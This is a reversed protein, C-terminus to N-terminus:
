SCLKLKLDLIRINEEAQEKSVNFSGMDFVYSFKM